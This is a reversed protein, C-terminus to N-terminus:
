IWMKPAFLDARQYTPRVIQSIEGIAWIWPLGVFEAGSQVVMDISTTRPTFRFAPFSKASAPPTPAFALRESERAISYNNDRLLTMWGPIIEEANILHRPNGSLASPGVFHNVSPYLTSWVALFLCATCVPTNDM